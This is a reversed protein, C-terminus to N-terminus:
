TRSHISLIHRDLRASLGVLDVNLMDEFAVRPFKLFLPNISPVKIRFLLRLLEGYCFFFWYLLSTILDEAASILRLVSGDFVTFTLLLSSFLISLLIYLRLDQSIAKSYGNVFFEKVKKM